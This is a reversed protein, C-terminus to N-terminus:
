TSSYFRFLACATHCKWLANLAMMCKWRGNRGFFCIWMKRPVEWVNKNTAHTPQNVATLVSDFFFHLSTSESFQTNRKRVRGYKYRLLAVTANSQPDIKGGMKPLITIRTDNTYLQKLLLPIRFHWFLKNNSRHLFETVWCNQKTPPHTDRTTLCLSFTLLCTEELNSQINSLEHIYKCLFRDM